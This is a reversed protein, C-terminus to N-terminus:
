DRVRLIIEPHGLKNATRVLCFSKGFVASKVWGAQKRVASYGRSTHKLIEFSLPESRTDVLWYEPIGAEWYAKRLTETDKLVSSESIIELVMDPTGEAEVFGTEAGEVLRVRGTELADNSIFTGDPKVSIDADANSLLLGDTLYLGRKGAKVLGGLVVTYETKVQLHSFIQEKSMDVWVEGRLYCIRGTDPFDGSDAWRRFSNLDTVWSPISVQNSEDIFTVVAFAESTRLIL